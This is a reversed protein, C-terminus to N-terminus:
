HYGKRGDLNFVNIAITPLEFLTTAAVLVYRIAVQSFTMVILIASAIHGGDLGLDVLEERKNLVTTM